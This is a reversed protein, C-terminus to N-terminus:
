EEGTGVEVGMDRCDTRRSKMRAVREELISELDLNGEALKSRWGKGEGGRGDGRRRGGRRSGAARADKM